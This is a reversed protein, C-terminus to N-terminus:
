SVRPETSCHTCDIVPNDRGSACLRSPLNRKEPQSSCSFATATSEPPSRRLSASATVTAEPAFKRTSSSGVFWRSRSLRSASSAASSANGPVTKSTECSRASRSAIASRVRAMSSPSSRPYSPPQASSSRRLSSRAARVFGSGGRTSRGLGAAFGTGGFGFGRRGDSSSRISPSIAARSASTASSSVFSASSQLSTSTRAAWLRLRSARVASRSRQSVSNSCACVHLQDFQETRKDLDLRGRAIGTLDLRPQLLLQARDARADLPAAVMEVRRDFPVLRRQEQEAVDVRHPRASRKCPHGKAEVAVAGVTGTRVVHLAAEHDEEFRQAPGLRAMRSADDDVGVLLDSARLGARQEGLRGGTRHGGEDEFTGGLAPVELGRPLPDTAEGEGNAAPRGVRRSGRLPHARDLLDRVLDQAQLAEGTVADGDVDAEDGAARALVDHGGSCLGDEVDPNRREGVALPNVCGQALKARDELTRLDLERAPPRPRRELPRLAGGPEEGSRALM